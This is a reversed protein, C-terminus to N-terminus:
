EKPVKPVANDTTEVVVYASATVKFAIADLAAINNANTTIGSTDIVAIAAANIQEMASARSTEAAIADANAALGTTLETDTAFDAAPTGGLKNGDESLLAFPVSHIQGRDDFFDSGQFGDGDSDIALGYWLTEESILGAPLVYDISFRGSESTVVTGTVVALESGGVELDYYGIRYDFNGVLPGGGPAELTGQLNITEPPPAAWIGSLSVGLVILCLTLNRM